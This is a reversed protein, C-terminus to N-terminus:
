TAGVSGRSVNGNEASSPRTGSYKVQVIFHELRPSAHMVDTWWENALILGHSREVTLPLSTGDWRCRSPQSGFTPPVTSMATM